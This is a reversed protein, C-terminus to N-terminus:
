WQAIWELPIGPASINRKKTEEHYIKVTEKAPLGKEELKKVWERTATQFAAYWLKADEPNEKDIYHLKVGSDAIEKMMVKYVDETLGGSTRFPNSCV